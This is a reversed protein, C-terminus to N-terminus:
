GLTAQSAINELFKKISSQEFLSNRYQLELVFNERLQKIYLMMDFQVDAGFDEVHFKKSYQQQNKRADIYSIFFRTLPFNDKEFKNGTLLVLDDYQFCNNEIAKVVRNMILNFYKYKDHTENELSRIVVLSIFNGITADVEKYNRGLSPTGVVLDEKGLFKHLNKLYNAFIIIFPTTKYKQAIKKLKLSEHEDFVFQAIMGRKPNGSHEKLLPLSIKKYPISFVEQWYKKEKTIDLSNSINSYQRYSMSKAVPVEDLNKQFKDIFIEQSYGDSILHHVVWLVLIKHNKRLFKIRFLPFKHVDIITSKFSTKYKEYNEELFPEISINLKEVETNSNYIQLFEKSFAIKLSDNDKITQKMARKIHEDEYKIDIEFEKYMNAANSNGGFLYINKYRRQNTSMPLVTKDDDLLVMPKIQHQSKVFNHLDNLIPYKFIDGMTINVNYAESLSLALMVANLSDGGLMFFDDTKTFNTKQLIDSVITYFKSNIKKSEHNLLAQLSKKDIKGNKNLPFSEVYLIDCLTGKPMLEAAYKILKNKNTDTTIISIKDHNKILIVKSKAKQLFASELSDLNIRVGNIKIESDIRGTIFLFGDQMYGKDGTAYSLEGNEQWVFNKNEHNIYGYSSFLTQICIEDKVISAITNPLTDKLPEYTYSNNKHIYYMKALTTETPGYLNIINHEKGLYKQWNVITEHPLKEGAFFTYILSSNVIKNSIKIYANAISPVTHVITIKKKVIWSLPDSLHEKKTPIILTSGSVFCTFIERLFVDFSNPTFNSFRHHSSINFTDIQWKVFHAISRQSTLIGKPHGSSGSTFYIAAFDDNISPLICLKQKITPVYIYDSLNKIEKYLSQNMDKSLFIPIYSHLMLAIFSVIELYKDDTSICVKSEKKMVPVDLSYIDDLFKRYTVHQNKYEIAIKDKHLNASKIFLELITEQSKFQQNTFRLKKIQQMNDMLM